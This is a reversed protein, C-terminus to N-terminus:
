QYSSKFRSETCSLGFSLNVAILQKSRISLSFYRQLDSSLNKTLNKKGATTMADKLAVLVLLPHGGRSCRVSVITMNM